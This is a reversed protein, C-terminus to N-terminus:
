YNRGTSESVSERKFIIISGLLGKNGTPQRKDISVVVTSICNLVYKNIQKKLIVILENYYYFYCKM